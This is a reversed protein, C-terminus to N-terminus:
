KVIPIDMENIFQCITAPKPWNDGSFRRVVEPVGILVYNRARTIAVFALRRREELVEGEGKAPFVEQCWSPLYVCDFERGKASHITSVVVGDDDAEAHEDIGDQAMRLALAAVSSQLPGMDTIIEFVRAIVAQSVGRRAFENLVAGIPVPDLNEDVANISKMALTARRRVDDAWPQGKTQRLVQYAVLDNEPACFFAIILRAKEWERRDIRNKKRSVQQGEAALLDAYEDCEFNTRCLVAVSLGEALAQDISALIFSKQRGEHPFIRASIVGEDVRIPVTKKGLRNSNMEILRNAAACITTGSRYNSSLFLPHQIEKAFALLHEPRAGRFQFISQDLDGVVFKNRFDAEQYIDWDVDGSDQVEDVFLYLGAIPSIRQVGQIGNAKVHRCLMLGYALISNFDLMGFNLLKRHYSSSVARAGTLGRVGPEMFPISELAETLATKTGRYNMEKKIEELMAEAVTEEIVTLHPPLGIVTGHRELCRFMWGHLTGIFGIMAVDTESLKATLRMRLEDAAANTFTIVVIDRPSAKGDQIIKAIRGVLTHTKGSGPGAIVAISTSECALVASQEDNYSM